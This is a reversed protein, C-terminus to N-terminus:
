LLISIVTIALLIVLLWVIGSAVVTVADRFRNQLALWAPFGLMISGCILASAVFTTLFIIPPILSRDQGLVPGIRTAAIVFLGIYLAIGVAQLFGIFYPPKNALAHVLNNM